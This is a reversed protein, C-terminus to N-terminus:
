SGGPAYWARAEALAQEATPWTAARAPGARRLARELEEDSLVRHLADALAEPDGPPVLLAADGVLEPIGGVATAIVPTGSQLAEQLVLPRAEWTSCLVFVDAAAHLRPVDDRHGLLTAPLDRGVIQAAISAREPGEGAILVRLRASPHAALLAAVADLLLPYSKQSALRGVALVVRDSTELGLAARAEDRSTALSAASPSVPLRSAPVPCFAAQRAGLERARDVLDASAGLVVDSRHVALTETLETIRRSIGHPRIANHLTVIHRPRSRRPMASLALNTLAAAKIGHSHVVDAASLVRRLMRPPVFRAGTEGFGFLAETQEPGLVVVRDGRAVCYAALARVYTGIGGASPGLVLAIRLPRDHASAGTGAGSTERSM